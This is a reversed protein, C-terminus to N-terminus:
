RLSPLPRDHKVLSKRTLEEYFSICRIGNALKNHKSEFPTFNTVVSATVFDSRDNLVSVKRSIDTVFHAHLRLHHITLSSIIRLKIQLVHM